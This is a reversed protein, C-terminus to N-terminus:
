CFIVVGELRVRSSTSKRSPIYMIIIIYIIISPVRMRMM